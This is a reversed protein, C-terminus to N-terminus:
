AAMSERIADLIEKREVRARQDMRDMRRNLDEKLAKQDRCTRAMSDELHKVHSNILRRFFKRRERSAERGERFVAVALALLGVTVSIVEWNM